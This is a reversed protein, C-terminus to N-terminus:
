LTTESPYDSFHLVVAKFYALEFELRAIVNVKSLIDKDGLSNTLTVATRCSHSLM